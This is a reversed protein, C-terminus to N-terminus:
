DGSALSTYRKVASLLDGITEIDIADGLDFIIGFDQEVAQLLAVHALSDWQPIDGAGLDPDFHESDLKLTKCFLERVRKELVKRIGGLSPQHCYEAFGPVGLRIGLGLLLRRDCFDYIAVRRLNPERPIFRVIVLVQTSKKVEISIM